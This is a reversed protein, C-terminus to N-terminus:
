PSFYYLAFIALSPTISSFCCIDVPYLGAHLFPPLYYYGSEKTKGVKVILFFFIEKEWKVAVVVQLKGLSTYATHKIKYRLLNPAPSSFFIFLM